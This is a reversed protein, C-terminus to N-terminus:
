DRVTLVPCPAHCVVKHDETWTAHGPLLPRRKAGVVILDANMQLAIEAITDGPQGEPAMVESHIQADSPALAQLRTRISEANEELSTPVDAALSQIVHLLILKGICEHM